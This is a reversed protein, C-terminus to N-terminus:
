EKTYFLLHLKQRRHFNRKRTNFHYKSKKISFSPFFKVKIEYLSFFSIKTKHCLFKLHVLRDGNPISSFIKEIKTMLFDVSKFFVYGVLGGSICKFGARIPKLFILKNLFSKKKLCILAKNLSYLLNFYNCSFFSILLREKKVYTTRIEKLDNTVIERTNHYELSNDLTTIFYKKKKLITTKFFDANRVFSKEYAHVLGFNKEKELYHQKILLIKSM